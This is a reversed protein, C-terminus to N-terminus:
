IRKLAQVKQKLQEPLCRDQTKQFSGPTERAAPQSTKTRGTKDAIISSFLEVVREEDMGMFSSFGVLGSQTM